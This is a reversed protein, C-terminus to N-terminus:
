TRDTAPRVANFSQKTSVGTGGPSQPRCDRSGWPPASGSPGSRASAPTARGLAPMAPRPHVPGRCAALRHPGCRCASPAVLAAQSQRPISAQSREQKQRRGTVSPQRHRNKHACVLPLLMGRLKHGLPLDGHSSPFRASTPERPLRQKDTESYNGCQCAHQKSPFPMRLPTPPRILVLSCHM